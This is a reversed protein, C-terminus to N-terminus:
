TAWTPSPCRTLAPPRRPPEARRDGPGGRGPQRSRLPRGQAPRHDRQDLGRRGPRVLGAAALQRAGARGVLEPGRRPHGGRVTPAEPPPGADPDVVLLVPAARDMISAVEGPGMRPNIGSTIAGLRLLAPTCCPTTSARPCSCASSTGRPSASAPSTARWATPRGTGSRRLDPQAPRGRRRARRVGRRRRQGTGGGAPRVGRDRASGLPHASAHRAAITGPAAPVAQRGPAGISAVHQHGQAAADPGSSHEGSEHPDDRGAVDRRDDVDAVVHLQVAEGDAGVEVRDGVGQGPHVVTLGPPAHGALAPRDHVLQPPQAALVPEAQAIAVQRGM